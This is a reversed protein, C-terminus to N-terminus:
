HFMMGWKTWLYLLLFHQNSVIKRCYANTRTHQENNHAGVFLNDHCRECLTPIYLNDLEGPVNPRYSQSPAPGAEGADLDGARQPIQLAFLPGGPQCVGQACCLFLTLLVFFFHSSHLAALHEEFSCLPIEWNSHLVYNNQESFANRM